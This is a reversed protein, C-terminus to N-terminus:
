DIKEIHSLKESDMEGVTNDPQLKHLTAFTQTIKYLIIGIGSHIPQFGGISESFSVLPKRDMIARCPMHYLFLLNVSDFTLLITM